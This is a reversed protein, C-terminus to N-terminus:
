GDNLAELADIVLAVEADTLEPFCPVSICSAAWAEAEPCGARTLERYAPQQTLALPYHVASAVGNAALRDRTTSRDDARFVALHHVHDAHDDQWRLEPAAARLAAAISRRRETAAALGPLSLRLWGAELESLRFNQSRDVHVYQETMGHVRLRRIAAALADDGTTVAGGDGIGGLNKTPYFSYVTAASARDAHLAGHAQAADDVVPLDTAPPEAPRGYLHVVIVAKTRETRHAEWAPAAVTATRPDVDVFVPTAGVACVASATPVATFAPVLVEDGPGVGLAHLVLQLGAAGSSVGVVHADGCWAALEGELGELEPGLLVHGSALVRAVVDQFPASLAAARRSLDVVPVV